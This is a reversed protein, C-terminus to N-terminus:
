KKKPAGGFILALGSDGKPKAAKDGGGYGGAEDKEVCLRVAEKFALMREAMPLTDDFATMAEREADDAPEYASESEGATMAALPDSDMEPETDSLDPLM